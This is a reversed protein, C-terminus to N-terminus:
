WGEVVEVKVGGGGCVGHIWSPLCGTQGEAAYIIVGQYESTQFSTCIVDIPHEQETGLHGKTAGRIPGNPFNLSIMYKQTRHIHTKNPAM